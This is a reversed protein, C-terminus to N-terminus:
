EGVETALRELAEEAVLVAGRALPVGADPTTHLLVERIDDTTLGNRLAVEIHLAIADERGLATLSALNICSKPDVVHGVGSQGALLYLAHHTSVPEASQVDVKDPGAAAAKQLPYSLSAFPGPAQLYSNLSAAAAQGDLPTGDGFKAGQRFTLRFTRHEKDVWEWSTALGPQLEGTAPSVHILSDYAVSCFVLPVCNATDLDLLDGSVSITLTGGSAGGASSGSSVASVGSALAVRRRTTKVSM